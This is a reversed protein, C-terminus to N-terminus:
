AHELELREELWRCVMQEYESEGASAAVIQLRVVLATPLRLAAPAHHKAKTMMTEFDEPQMQHYALETAAQESESLKEFRKNM